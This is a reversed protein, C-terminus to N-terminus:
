DNMPDFVDLIHAIRVILSTRNKEYDSSDSCSLSPNSSDDLDDWEAIYCSSMENNSFSSTISSQYESLDLEFSFSDLFFL